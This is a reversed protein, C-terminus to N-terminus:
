NRTPAPATASGSQDTTTPAQETDPPAPADEGIEPIYAIADVLWHGGAVTVTLPYTLATKTYNLTSASITVLLHATRGDAPRDDATDAVISTLKLSSYPAPQPGSVVARTTTYRSLDTAGTLYAKLFGEALPAFQDSSTVTNSYNLPVDVGIPPAAIQAPLTLARPGSNLVSVPVRFYSRHPTRTSVSDVLVSVTVYWLALPGSQQMKKVIVTEPQTVEAPVSPLEISDASIYKRLASSDRNTSTLYTVVFDQAFSSALNSEAITAVSQATPDPTNDGDTFIGLFSRLGGVAVLAVVVVIAARQLQQRRRLSAVFTENSSSGTTRSPLKM